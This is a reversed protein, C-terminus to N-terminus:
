LRARCLSGRNRGILLDSLHERIHEGGYFADRGAIAFRAVLSQCQHLIFDERMNVELAHCAECNAPRPAARVATLAFCQDRLKASQDGAGIRHGDIGIVAM